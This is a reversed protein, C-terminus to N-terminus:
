KISVDNIIQLPQLQICMFTRGINRFNWPGKKFISDMDRTDANYPAADPPAMVMIQNRIELSIKVHFLNKANMAKVIIATSM